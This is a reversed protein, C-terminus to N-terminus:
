VAALGSGSPRSWDNAHQLGRGREAYIIHGVKGVRVVGAGISSYYPPYYTVVVGRIRTPTAGLLGRNDKSTSGTTHSVGRRM